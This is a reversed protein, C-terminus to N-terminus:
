QTQQNCSAPTPATVVLCICIVCVRARVFTTSDTTRTYVRPWTLHTCACVCPALLLRLAVVAARTDPARAITSLRRSVGWGGQPHGRLVNPFPWLGLVALLSSGLVLCERRRPAAGSPPAQPAALRRGANRTTQRSGAATTSEHEQLTLTLLRGPVGAREAHNSGSDACAGTCQLSRVAAASRRWSLRSPRCGKVPAAPVPPWAGPPM